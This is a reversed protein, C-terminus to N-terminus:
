VNETKEKKLNKKHRPVFPLVHKKRKTKWSEKNEPEALTFLSAKPALLIQTPYLSRHGSLVYCFACICGAYPAINSGFLEMALFTAAIPTNVGGAVCGVFGLAGFFAIDLGFTQAFLAGAAAGIFFTPTLVGGSGGGCLTVALLFSKLLFAYWVVNEGNLIRVMSKEGMGLFEEGGAAVVSLLVASSIMCKAWAPIRIKQYIRRVYNNLEIHCICVLAFFLSAAICWGLLNPSPMPINVAFDAYPVGMKLCVLYASIGSLVSPLLVSYFVEGVFLVEIGFVAGAVPAGFVASLAASVGCIVLKKREEAFFRMSRALASMLAAGIQVSPGELGVVGGPALTFLTSLIKGPVVNFPIKASHLHIDELVKETGHGESQPSLFRVCGMSLLLGAPILAYKWAPLADIFACSKYILLLFAGVLGGALAGTLCALILWKFAAYFLWGEDKISDRWM